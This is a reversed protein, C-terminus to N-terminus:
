PYMFPFHIWAPFTIVHCRVLTIKSLVLLRDMHIFSIDMNPIHDCPLQCIYDQEVGVHLVHLFSTGVCPNAQLVYLFSTCM